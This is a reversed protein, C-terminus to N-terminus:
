KILYKNVIKLAVKENTEINIGEYVHGFSGNGRKKVIKYKDFLIQDFLNLDDM